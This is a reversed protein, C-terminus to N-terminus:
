LESKDPIKNLNAVIFQEFETQNLSAQGETYKFVVPNAKDGSPIFYLEPKYANVKFKEDPYDNKTTDIKAFM